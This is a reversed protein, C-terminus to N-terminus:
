RFHKVITALKWFDHLPAMVQFPAFMHMMIECTVLAPLQLAQLGICVETGRVRVLRWRLPALQARAKGVSEETAATAVTGGGAIVLAAFSSHLQLTAPLTCDAGAAILMALAAHSRHAALEVPSRGSNDRADIDAGALFLHMIAAASNSAAHVPSQGSKDVADVNAGRKLLHRLAKEQLKVATETLGPAEAVMHLLSPDGIYRADVNAGAKVLTIVNFLNANRAAVACPTSGSRDPADFAAGVSVLYAIVERDINKAALHCANNGKFDVLDLSAGADVLARMHVVNGRQAVLHCATRDLPDGANLDVGLAIVQRLIQVNQNVAARALLSDGNRLQCADPRAGAAILMAFLKDNINSVSLSLPTEGDASVANVDANAAILRALVAENSNQAAHHCPTWGVKDLVSKSELERRNVDCGKAILLGIVHDNTCGAAFHCPSKGHLDPVDCPVGSAILQELVRYNTNHAAFHCPTHGNVDPTSCDAGHAILQTIVADNNNIAALHSPTFQSAEDKVSSPVGARLLLGIVNPNENRAAAHCLTSGKLSMSLDIGSEIFAAMVVDNEVTAANAVIHWWPTDHGNKARGVTVTLSVIYKVIEIHNMQMATKLPTQVLGRRVVLQDIDDETVVLSKLKLLDNEIVAQQIPGHDHSQGGFFNPFNM